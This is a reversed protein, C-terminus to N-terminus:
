VREKGSWYSNAQDSQQDAQDAQDAGQADECELAEDQYEPV